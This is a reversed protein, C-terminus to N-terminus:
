DTLRRHNIAIAKVHVLYFVYHRSIVIKEGNKLTAELRGNFQTRVSSVCFINLICNKSVRILPTHIYDKEIEYLKKDYEYVEKETYLFVKNDVTNFYFVDELTISIIAGDKQVNLSYSFMKIHEILQSLHEDIYSCSIKVEPEKYEKSQEIILKM